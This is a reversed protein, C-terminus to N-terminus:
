RKRLLLIRFLRLEDRYFIHTLVAIASYYIIIGEIDNCYLVCITYIALFTALYLINRPSIHISKFDHASGLFWTYFSATTILAISRYDHFLSVTIFIASVSLALLTVVTMLYKSQRQEVKYINIYLVNIVIIAPLGALLISIINLSPIYKIIFRKVIIRFVFFAGSACIGIILLYDKIQNLKQINKRKALYPYFTTTLSNTLTTVVTMMSIAFAYFAFHNVDFFGRVIWRDISYFLIMAFNAILIFLGAQFCQKYDKFDWTLRNGSTFPKFWELAFYVSYYILVTSLIYFFSRQVKFLILILQILLTGFSTMYMIRTYLTFEGLAQYTFAYFSIMNMPIIALAFAFIIFNALQCSILAVILAALAQFYLLFRKESLLEQTDLEKAKKGGYKLFIGDVFGGHFIGILSLYLTYTKIDAYQTVPLCAPLIFGIIVGAILTIINANFVKM